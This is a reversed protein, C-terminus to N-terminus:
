QEKQKWVNAKIDKKWEWAAYVYIYTHFREEEKRAGSKTEDRYLNMGKVKKREKEKRDTKMKLWRSNQIVCRNAELEGRPYFVRRFWGPKRKKAWEKTREGEATMAAPKSKRILSSPHLLSRRHGSDGYLSTFAAADISLNFGVNVKVLLIRFYSQSTPSISARPSHFNMDFVCNVRIM